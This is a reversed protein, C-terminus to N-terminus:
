RGDGEPIGFERLKELPVDLKVDEGGSYERLWKFTSPIWQRNRDLMVTFVGERGRLRSDFAVELGSGAELDDPMRGVLRRIEPYDVVNREFRPRVVLLGRMSAQLEEIGLLEDPTLNRKLLNEGDLSGPPLSIGTERALLPLLDLSNEGGSLFLDYRREIWALPLGDSDLIAGRGAAVSRTIWAVRSCEGLYHERRSLGTRILAFVSVVFCLAFIMCIFDHRLLIRDISHEIRMKM